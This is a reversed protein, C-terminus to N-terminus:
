VSSKVTRWCQPDSAYFDRKYGYAVAPCGRCFRLLLCDKCKEFKGYHRYKDMDSSKYADYIGTEVNGVVSDFRRCAMINGDATITLHDQACHCGDYIGYPDSKQPIKWLKKEYLYLTWLHDKLNFITNSNSNEEFKHWCADLFKRYEQPPIHWASKVGETPCYRAFAYVDVQNGVVVDILQPIDNMNKASVTSMVVCKIGAERIIPIANVTAKFSGPRRLKDHTPALGDLSLQFKQCGLSSLMQCVEKNLHYPNGMISFPIKLDHVLELFDWFRSHLMPDGGTIYLYPERHLVRCHEVIGDLTSVLNDWPTEVPKVNKRAYIYCHKCRLDCNDTIHWQVAFYSSM